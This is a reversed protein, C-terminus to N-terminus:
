QDDLREPKQERCAHGSPLAQGVIGESAAM